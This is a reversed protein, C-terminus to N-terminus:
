QKLRAQLQAILADKEQNQKELEANQMELETNQRELSRAKETWEAFTLFPLGDPYFIRLTQPTTEFRVQLLTSTWTNEIEIELLDEGSRIYVSFENEYPDYIYYEQVGYQKYFNYKRTMEISTNSESLVEVAVQPAIGNEEWQKYSGRYGKPRGLAVLADPAKCIRANGEVPYWLLDGAVFVDPNNEFLVEFGEKITVIWEFQLTNDATPKGDSDPYLIRKPPALLDLM